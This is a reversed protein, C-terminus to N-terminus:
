VFPLVHRVHKPPHAAPAWLRSTVHVALGQLVAETAIPSLRLKLGSNITNSGRYSPLQIFIGIIHILM